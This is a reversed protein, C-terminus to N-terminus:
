GLLSFTNVESDADKKRKKLQEAVQMEDAQSELFEGINALHQARLPVDPANFAASFVKEAAKTLILKPNRCFLSGM